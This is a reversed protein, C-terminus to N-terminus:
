VEFGMVLIDDIQPRSGQWKLFEAELLVKQEGMPKQYIQMLINKYGTMKIKDGKPGGFQSSYGDSSLYIRDGEQLKLTHAQFPVEKIYVGIPNHTPKIQELKGDRIYILPINGGSYQLERNKKDIVMIAIDMGDKPKGDDVVNQKLLFKVMDRLKNLIEGANREHATGVIEHLASVGLMSVFAGPVGHGTCDACVIVQFDADNHQWYYDGSVVNRPVYYVFSDKFVNKFENTDPLLARQIRKAYSISDTIQDQQKQLKQNLKKVKKNNKVVLIIVGVGMLLFFVLGWIYMQNKAKEQNLSDIESQKKYQEASYQINFVSQSLKENFISDNYLIQNSYCDAAAKYDKRAFHVKAIADYANMISFKSGVLKSYYLSKEALALSSDLMKEGYYINALKHTIDSILDYDNEIYPNVLCAQYERKATSVMGQEVHTDALYKYPVIVQYNLKQCQSRIAISELFWQVAMDYEHRGLYVRGLNLYCYGMISSDALNKAIDLAKNLNEECEHFSNHYLYINAINIHAYAEQDRVNHEVATSLGMSYYELAESYNGLNRQCVGIYSYGKVLQEWNESNKACEIAKSAYQIAIEPSSNRIKWCIDNNVVAATSDPAGAAVKILSDVEPTFQANAVGMGTATFLLLSLISRTFKKM